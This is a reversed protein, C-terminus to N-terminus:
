WGDNLDLIATDQITNTAALTTSITKTTDTVESARATDEMKLPVLTSGATVASIRDLVWRGSNEGAASWQQKILIGVLVCERSAPMLMQIAATTASANNNSTTEVTLSYLAM